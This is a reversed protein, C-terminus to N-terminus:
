LPLMDCPPPAACLDCITVFAGSNLCLFLTITDVNAPFSFVISTNSGGNSLTDCVGDIFSYTADLEGNCGSGQGVELTFQQTVSGSPRFMVFEHCNNLPGNKCDTQGNQIDGQISVTGVGCEPITELNVSTVHLPLCDTVPCQAEIFGSAFFFCVWAFATKRLVHSNFRNIVKLNKPFAFSTFHHTKMLQPNISFYEKM